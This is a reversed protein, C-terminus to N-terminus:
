FAARLGLVGVLIRYFTYRLIFSSSSGGSSDFLFTRSCLATM